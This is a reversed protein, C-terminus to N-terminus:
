KSPHSPALSGCLAPCTVQIVSISVLAAKGGGGRGAGGRDSGHHHRLLSISSGRPASQPRPRSLHQGPRGVAVVRAGAKAAAGPTRAPLLSTARPSPSPRPGPTAAAKTTGPAVTKKVATPPATAPAPMTSPRPSTTVGQTPRKHVVASQKPAATAGAGAASPAPVARPASKSRAAPIRASGAAPPQARPTVVGAAAARHIAPVAAATRRPTVAATAAAAAAAAAGKAVSRPPTNMGVAKNTVAAKARTPTAAGPSLLARAAVKVGSAKRSSSPPTFVAVHTTPRKPTSVVATSVDKPAKQSPSANFSNEKDKEAALAAEMERLRQLSAETGAMYHNKRQPMVHVSGSDSKDKVLIRVAGGSLLGTLAVSTPTRILPPTAHTGTSAM